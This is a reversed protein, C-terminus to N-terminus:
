FCIVNIKQGSAATGWHYLQNLNSVPILGTDSGPSLQWGKTLSLDAGGILVNGVNEIPCQIRAGHKCAVSAFQVAAGNSPTIQTLFSPASTSNADVFTTTLRDTVATDEVSLPEDVTTVSLLSSGTFFRLVKALTQAM